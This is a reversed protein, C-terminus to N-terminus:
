KKLRNWTGARKRRKFSKETLVKKRLGKENGMIVLLMEKENGKKALVLGKKM